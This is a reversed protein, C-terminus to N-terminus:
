EDNSEELFDKLWIRYDANKTIKFGVLASILAEEKIEEAMRQFYESEEISFETEPINLIKWLEEERSM